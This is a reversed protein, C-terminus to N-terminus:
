KNKNFQHISDKYILALDEATYALEPIPEEPETALLVLLAMAAVAQAERDAMNSDRAIM